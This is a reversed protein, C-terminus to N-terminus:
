KLRADIQPRLQKWNHTGALTVGNIQFSPTGRIGAADADAASREAMTKAKGEDSLCRDIEPKRYGRSEMIRYFGFHQAIRKRLATGGSNQWATQQAQTIKSTLPLWTAQRHMFAAHNAYFKTAPGCNALMAATLDIPDRILHRVELSVKGSGIYGIKLAGEGDRAFDACHNCTYSIYETLRVPADANGIRHGGNTEVVLTNWNSSAAPLMAAAGVCLTLRLISRRMM